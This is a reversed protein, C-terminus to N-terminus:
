AYNAYDWYSLDYQAAGEYRVHGNVFLLSPRPATSPADAITEMNERVRYLWNMEANSLDIPPFVLASQLLWNLKAGEIYVPPRITRSDFFQLYDFGVRPPANLSLLGIPPLYWFCDRAKISYPPTVTSGGLDAVHGQFQLLMALRDLLLPHRAMGSWSASDTWLIALRRVAWEDVFRVGQSTWWVLGLPVEADDLFDDDRLEDLFTRPAATGTSMGFFGLPDTPFEQWRDSGFCLHALGNRVQSTKRMVDRQLSLPPNPAALQPMLTNLEGAVQAVNQRLQTSTGDATIPVRVLRFRVGSVAYRSGCTGGVGEQDLGTMPARGEYGSAPLVTLIYFGVNNLASQPPQPQPGPPPCANFEADGLPAVAVERTLAVTTDAPLALVTGERNIALGSTVNVIPRVTTSAGSNLAVELGTVVGDGIARGIRREREVVARQLTQFDDATLLRGNFFNTTRIGDRLIPELLEVTM